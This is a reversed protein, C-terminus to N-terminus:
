GNNLHKKNSIYNIFYHIPRIAFDSLKTMNFFYISTMLILFYIFALGSNWPLHFYSMLWLIVGHFLYFKLSDKGIRSLIINKVILCAISISILLALVYFSARSIIGIIQHNHEYGKVCRVIERVNLWNQPTLYIILGFSIVIIIFALWLPTKKCLSIFDKGQAMTGLWFFPAFVIMRSLAFTKGIGGIMGVALGLGFLAILVWFNLYIVIKPSIPRVIITWIYYLIRWVVLVFLYWMMSAPTTIFMTPSYEYMFGKLIQFVIYSEAIAIIGKWFSHSNTHSLYGSIFVFFPMHFLYIWNAVVSTDGGWLLCHGLVVLTILVGKLTDIRGDREM